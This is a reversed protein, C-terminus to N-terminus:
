VSKAVRLAECYRECRHELEVRATSTTYSEAAMEALQLDSLGGVYESSFLKVAGQDGMLREVVSVVVYDGFRKIAVKYYAKLVDHIDIVAQDENSLHIGSTLKGLDITYDHGDQLGLAQLRAIVREQRIKELTEAFYHNVTQLIGGREDNLLDMLQGWASAKTSDIRSLIISELSTRITEDKETRRSELQSYETILQFIKELYDGAIQEWQVTQQRFLNILLTPNVTGPLEAGRADKYSGRIWPMIDPVESEVDQDFYDTDVSGDSQQFPFTHGKTRIDTEFQDALDRLHMRLKLQSKTDLDAAYNGRLADEVNRQYRNALRTLYQRQEAATQRSAGLAEVKRQTERYLDEIEKVLAPFERRIHEYLLQGLFPKLAKVGVRDKPLANWPAQQFFRRENEHRELITVGEKIERTSRNRVVFWGHQLREVNNQAINLVGHEDGSQLADCKTIIGVTRIGAPDAARAMKFVEQNALNNRADMVALIITRADTTYTEILSRIVSLDERTQYKTPNHFLGPVDVVSLHHQDPGSIEIRLIDDSFRKTLNEIDQNDSNPLGMYEAAEDLVWAFKSGSLEDADMQMDFELLRRKQVDDDLSSPGPVISAKILAKEGPTRHLVIQTAFRTCLDSAIPFSLGTLGELLSSKGSSQDGIVVIQPLPLDENIGFGRLQDIVRFYRLREPNDMEQIDRGAM